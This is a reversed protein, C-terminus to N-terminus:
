AVKMRRKLNARMEDVEERYGLVDIDQKLIMAMHDFVDLDDFYREFKEDTNGTRKRPGLVHDRFNMNEKRGWGDKLYKEPIITYLYEVYDEPNEVRFVKFVKQVDRIKYGCFEREPKWHPNTSRWDYDAPLDVPFQDYIWDHFTASTRISEPLYPEVKDLYASLTRRLPNRIVMYKPLTENSLMRAITESDRAYLTFINKRDKDHITAASEYNKAGYIRNLMALHYTCGNKPIGCYLYQVDPRDTVYILQKYMPTKLDMCPKGDNDFAYKIGKCQRDGPAPLVAVSTDPPDHPDEEVAPPIVDGQVAVPATPPEGEEKPPEGGEKPPEGGEKALALVDPGELHDPRVSASWLLYHAVLVAAVFIVCILAASSTFRGKSPPASARFRPSTSASDVLPVVEHPM